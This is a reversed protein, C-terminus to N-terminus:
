SSVLPATEMKRRGGVIVVAMRDVALAPEDRALMAAAADRADLVVARPAHEGVAELALAEIRGVVDDHLRVTRDPEGIRGVADIGVVFAVGRRLLDAGAVDIADIGVVPSTVATAVSKTLGFPRAKEGSSFCGRCRRCRRSGHASRGAAYGRRPPRAGVTAREARRLQEGVQVAPRNSPKRTSVLPLM